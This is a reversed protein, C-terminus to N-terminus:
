PINTRRQRVLLRVAWICLAAALITLALFWPERALNPSESVMRWIHAVTVLGFVIATVTLFARM